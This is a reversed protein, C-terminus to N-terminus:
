GIVLYLTEENKQPIANYEEQTGYWISSTVFNKLKDDMEEKSYTEVLCKDEGIAYNM